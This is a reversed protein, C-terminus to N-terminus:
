FGYDVSFYFGDDQINSGRTNLNMLPPAYDLRINLKEIPQWIFGLGLGAIVTQNAVINNPNNPTNWITGVDFFPALVFVPDNSKNKVLTIRDEISFRLGNDGAMVNQRYGRVSQAGGIVFQESPLLSDPTLQLDLQIILFNDPNIVQLRQVQGLWSFFQGSPIPSPNSTADFLGTGFRFQSRVGWAGSAERFVYDQGFTFVSTITLGDENPGFGFPTGVDGFTFTQGNYYSFGASLALEEQPTRILPQRYDITYRESRGQINFDSINPLGEIIRNREILARLGLTGNMPNLPVGYNFELEYTGDWTQLRPRYGVSIQDGLGTPNRYLLGLKFREPGTSPPVYNDIGVNGVFAPAETVRVVLTSQGRGEQGPAGGEEAQPPKLTAEVNSFFPENRLLRLQEELKRVNLPTGLGLEVRARVYNQLRETGEIVLNGISGEIVQIIAVDDSVRVFAARSNLYGGNLYLQTIASAAERLQQETVQKGELPKIIQEFEAAGFITSGIVQIQKITWVQQSDNQAIQESSSPFIEQERMVQVVSLDEMQAPINPNEEAYIDASIMIGMLGLSSSLLFRQTRLRRTLNYSRM